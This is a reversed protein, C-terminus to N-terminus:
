ITRHRGPFFWVPVGEMRMQTFEGPPAPHGFLFTNKGDYLALPIGTPDFGPWLVQGAAIEKIRNILSVVLGDEMNAPMEDVELPAVARYARNDILRIGAEAMYIFTGKTHDLIVYKNGWPDKVVACKGIKIDFPGYLIQGGAKEIEVAADMVSDVKIDIFQETRENQIVIETKSDGMGLGVM